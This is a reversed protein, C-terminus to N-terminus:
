IDEYSYVEIGLPKKDTRPTLIATLKVKFDKFDPNKKDNCAVTGTLLDEALYDGRDHKTLGTNAADFNFEVRDCGYAEIKLLEGSEEYVQMRSEALEPELHNICVAIDEWVTQKSTTMCRRVFNKMDALVEEGSRLRPEDFIVQGVVYGNEDVGMLPAPRLAIFVVLGVIVALEILAVAWGLISANRYSLMLDRRLPLPKAVNSKDSM